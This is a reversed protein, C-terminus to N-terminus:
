ACERIQFNYDRIEQDGFELKGLVAEVPVTPVEGKRAM